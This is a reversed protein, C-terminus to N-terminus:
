TDLGPETVSGRDRLGTPIREFLGEGAVNLIADHSGISSLPRPEQSVIRRETWGRGARRMTIRDPDMGLAFLSFIASDVTHRYGYQPAEFDPMVPRLNQSEENERASM